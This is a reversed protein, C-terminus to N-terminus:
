PKEAQDSLAVVEVRQNSHQATEDYEPTVARQNAASAILRLRRWEVGRSALDDAVARARRYSLEFGQDSAAYAEAASVHGRVDIVNDQGKLHEAIADVSARAEADLEASNKGFHAKGAAGYYLSPRISQSQDRKGSPGPDRADSRGMKERLRHVLAAEAPNTSDPNVPNNFAERVSLAWDLMDNESSSAAAQGDSAQAGEAGASPPKMNLALLVAFFGMMLATNDAFSILWEPAGEHGEDHGGGGHGHGGGGGHKHGKSDHDDHKDSM